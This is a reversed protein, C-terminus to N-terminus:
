VKGPRKSSMKGKLGAVSGATRRLLAKLKATLGAFRGGPRAAAVVAASEATTAGPPPGAAAAGARAAGKPGLRIVALGRRAVGRVRGYLQAVVQEFKSIAAIPAQGNKVRERNYIVAAAALIIVLLLLVAWLPFEGTSAPVRSRESLPVVGSIDFVPRTMLIAGDSNMSGNDPFRWQAEMAHYDVHELLFPAEPSTEVKITVGYTYPVRLEQFQFPPKLNQLRVGVGVVSFAWLRDTKGSIQSASLTAEQHGGLAVPSSSLPSSGDMFDVQWGVSGFSRDNANVMVYNLDLHVETTGNPVWVYKTSNQVLLTRGFQDNFRSYVGEWGTVLTDTQASYVKDRAVSLEKWQEYADLVTAEPDTSRLKELVLALGIAKNMDTHGYGQAFDRPLGLFGTWNEYPPVYNDTGDMAEGPSLFDATLKLIVEIEHMRTRDNTFWNEIDEASHNGSGFDAHYDSVRLSPAAQFLLAVEGAVHPTAMSTGSIAMYYPNCDGGSVCVEATILTLRARTSEIRLGPAGIDPWTANDDKIGRSSFTTVGSGDRAYAAVSIAAPTNAYPNTTLTSGDHDSSGANGAAFTVAVNNEYTLKETVIAISDNPDYPAGATGWSNTACRINYPNNGPRSHDYVWELAGLANIIAVAEGTSLAILNAGPAVGKRAGASAKGDGAVTGAVHTGHGSSTDSNEIEYWVLNSDSKLSMITNDVLDPHGSDVGSDVVVVTVGRGDIEPYQLSTGDEVVANWARTANISTTSNEMMYTLPRNWEIWEVRPDASVRWVADVRGTAYVTPLVHFTHLPTLGAERMHGLDYVTPASEFRVLVGIDQGAPWSGMVFELYDNVVRDDPAAATGAALSLLPLGVM